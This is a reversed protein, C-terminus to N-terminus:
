LVEALEADREDAAHLGKGHERAGIVKGGVADLIGPVQDVHLDVLARQALDIQRVEPACDDVAV